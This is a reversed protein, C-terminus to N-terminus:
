FVEQSEVGKQGTPESVYCDKDQPLLPIFRARGVCQFTSPASRHVFNREALSDLFLQIHYGLAKNEIDLPRRASASFSGTEDDVNFDLVEPNLLTCRSANPTSGFFLRLFEQLNRKWETPENGVIELGVMQVPRPQLRFEVEYVTTDTLRLTKTQTAYGVISAIIEQNGLPVGKLEFRGQTDAAAGITSNSVFVNTLPLPSRTSDDLVRGKVIAHPISQSQLTQPVLLVFLSTVLAVFSTRIPM